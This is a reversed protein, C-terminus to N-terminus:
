IYPKDLMILNIINFDIIVWSGLKAINLKAVIIKVM